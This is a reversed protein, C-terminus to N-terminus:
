HTAVTHHIIAHDQNSVGGSDAITSIRVLPMNEDQVDWVHQLKDATWNVSGIKLNEMWGELRSGDAGDNTYETVPVLSMFRNFRLTPKAASSAPFLTGRPVNIAAKGVKGNYSYTARMWDVTSTRGTEVLITVTTDGPINVIPDSAAIHIPIQADDHHILNPKDTTPGAPNWGEVFKRGWIMPHWGEGRLNRLGVDFHHYLKTNETCIGLSINGARRGEPDSMSCKWLPVTCSVSQYTSTDFSRAYYHAGNAAELNGWIYAHFPAKRDAAYLSESKFMNCSVTWGKFQDSGIVNKILTPAYIDNGPILDNYTIKAM